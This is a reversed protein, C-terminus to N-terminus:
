LVVWILQVCLCGGGLCPFSEATGGEGNAGADLWWNGRVDDWHYEAYQRLVYKRTGDGIVGGAKRFRQQATQSDCRRDWHYPADEYVVDLLKKRCGVFLGFYIDSVPGGTGGLIRCNTETFVGGARYSYDALCQSRWGYRPDAPRWGLDYWDKRCCM